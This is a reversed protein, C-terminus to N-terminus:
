FQLNWRANVISADAEEEFNMSDQSIDREVSIFSYDIGFASDKSIIYGLGFAFVLSSDYDYKTKTGDNLSEYEGINVIGVGANLFLNETPMLQATVGLVLTNYSDVKTTSEDSLLKSESEGNHEFSVNGVLSFDKFKKGVELGIGFDTGGRYANGDKTTSGKESDGTKPSVNLSIDLNVKDTSQEKLRYKLKLNIDQLGQNEIIEKQGNQTSAPGYETESEEKLTYPVEIAWAFRDNISSGIQLETELMKKSESTLNQNVYEIDSDSHTSTFTIETFVTGSEPLYMLDHIERTNNPTMDLAYTVSSILLIFWSLLKM